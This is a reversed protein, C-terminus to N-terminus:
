DEGLCDLPGTGEGGFQGVVDRGRDRSGAGRGVRGGAAAAKVWADGDQVGGQSGVLTRLGHVPKAGSLDPDQDGSVQQRTPDVEAADVRHDVVVDGGRHGAIQVPGATRTTSRGVVDGGRGLGSRVLVADGEVRFLVHSVEM